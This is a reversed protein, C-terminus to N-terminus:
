RPHIWESSGGKVERMVDALCHTAKLGALIHVHDATGGVTQGSCGLTSLIGGLYAHLEIRWRPSLYPHRNKTSFVIHYNLRLHTTPM